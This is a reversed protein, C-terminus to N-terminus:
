TLRLNKNLKSSFNWTKKVSYKLSVLPRRWSQDRKQSKGRENESSQSDRLREKYSYLRQKRNSVYLKLKM